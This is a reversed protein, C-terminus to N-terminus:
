RRLARQVQTLQGPASPGRPGANMHGLGIALNRAIFSAMLVDATHHQPTYSTCAEVFHRVPEPCEGKMDNPIRWRGTAMEFFIGAVGMWPHAKGQQTTTFSRIPLSRGMSQAVQILFEQQGNNEVAAYSRFLEIKAFLKAVITLADWHGSEIDLIVYSERSVETFESGPASCGPCASPRVAGSAITIVRACRMCIFEFGISKSNQVGFTFFSTEGGKKDPTVALDVGTFTAMDGNYSPALAWIGEDRAKAKCREIFEEKCFASEDDSADSLFFKKFLGPTHVYKLRQREIEERSYRESWLPKKKELDPAHATLRCWEAKVNQIMKSGVVYLEPPSWADDANSVYIDGEVSMRLAPWYRAVRNVYDENHWTTNLICLRSALKPEMRNAVQGFFKDYTAQRQEPTATNEVSLLDDVIAYDVRWGQIEKSDIGLAAFSPDKIGAPRDVTIKIDSWPEGSRRSPLLHPAILRLEASSEIAQRVLLLPKKAQEQTASVFVGRVRPNQSLLFLGLGGCSVTKGTGIPLIVVCKDHKPHMIFSLLVRQHPPVTVHRNTSEDRLVLEFFDVPNTKARRAKAALANRAKSVRDADSLTKARESADEFARTRCRPRSCWGNELPALVSGCSCCCRQAAKLNQM